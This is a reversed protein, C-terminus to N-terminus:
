VEDGEKLRSEWYEIIKKAEEREDPPVKELFADKVRIVRKVLGLSPFSIYPKGTQMTMILLIMYVIVLIVSVASTLIALSALFILLAMNSPPFLWLWVFALVALAGGTLIITTFIRARDIAKKDIFALILRYGNEGEVPIDKIDKNTYDSM